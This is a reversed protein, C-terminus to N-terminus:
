VIGFQTTTNEAVYVESTMTSGINVVKGNSIMQLDITVADNM